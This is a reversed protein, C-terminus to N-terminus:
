GATVRVSRRPVSLDAVRREIVVTSGDVVIRDARGVDVITIRDIVHRVAIVAVAREHVMIVMVVVVIVGPSMSMRIPVMVAPVMTAPVMTATTIVAASVVAASVMTATTIVAAAMTVAPM